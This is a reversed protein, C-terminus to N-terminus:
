KKNRDKKVVSEKNSSLSNPRPLTQKQKVILEDGSEKKEMTAICLFKVKTRVDFCLRWLNRKRCFSPQWFGQQSWALSQRAQYIFLNHLFTRFPHKNPLVRSSLIVAQGLQTRSFYCIHLPLIVCFHATLM